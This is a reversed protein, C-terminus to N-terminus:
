KDVKWVFKTEGNEKREYTGLDRSVAQEQWTRNACDTACPGVIGFTVAAGILLGVLIGPGFRDNM